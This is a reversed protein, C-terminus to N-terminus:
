VDPIESHAIRGLIFIYFDGKKLLWFIRKVIVYCMVVFDKLGLKWLFFVVWGGVM